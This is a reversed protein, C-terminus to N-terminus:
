AVFETEFNSLRYGGDDLSGVNHYGYVFLMQRCVPRIAPENLAYWSRIRHRKLLPQCM